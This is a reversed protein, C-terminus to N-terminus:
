VRVECLRATEAMWEPIEAMIALSKGSPHPFTMKHALLYLKGPSVAAELRKDAKHCGYIGDGIIPAGLVRASHIRLQHKRGTMPYFKVFTLVNKLGGMVEYETIASKGNVPSNIVGKKKPVSGALAAVYEKRIEKSAFAQTIKQAAGRNKALVLVGSTDRDLRHTLLASDNPFLAAAMRDLSKRIGGGAQVALGAPKDFAVIDNDEHIIRKRLSELEDSSFKVDADEPKPARVSAM